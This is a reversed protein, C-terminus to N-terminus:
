RRGARSPAVFEQVVSTGTEAAAVVATEWEAQAAERGIVVQKGSMGLSAKLALLERNDVAFRVLDVKQDGLDDPPRFPGPDV